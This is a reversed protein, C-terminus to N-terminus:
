GKSTLRAFRATAIARWEARTHDEHFAQIAKLSTADKACTQSLDFIGDIVLEKPKAVDAFRAKIARDSPEKDQFFLAPITGPVSVHQVTAIWLKKSM